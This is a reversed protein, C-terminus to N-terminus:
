KKYLDDRGLLKVIVLGVAPLLLAGAFALLFSDITAAYAGIASWAASLGLNSLSVMLFFRRFPMRSLGAFFLSSEALVPVPRCLVIWWHGTRQALAELRLLSSRRLLRKELGGRSMTGLGYGFVSGLTMGAFSTTTGAVFGLLLGGGTSVISSPVPLLVDGCLLGIVALVVVPNTTQGNFLFDNTWEEITSGFLAFPVLIVVLVVLVLLGWRWLSGYPELVTKSVQPQAM